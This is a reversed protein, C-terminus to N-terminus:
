KQFYYFCDDDDGLGERVRLDFDPGCVSWLGM